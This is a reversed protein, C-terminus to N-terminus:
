LEVAQNNRIIAIQRTGILQNNSLRFHLAIMRRFLATERLVAICEIREPNATPMNVGARIPSYKPRDSTKGELSLHSAPNAVKSVLIECFM